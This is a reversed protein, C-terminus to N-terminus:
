FPHSDLPAKIVISKFLMTPMALSGKLKQVGWPSSAANVVFVFKLRVEIQSLEISERNKFLDEQFGVIDNM